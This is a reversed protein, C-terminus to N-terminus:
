RRPPRGGGSGGRRATQASAILENAIEEAEDPAFDLEVVGARTTIIFRVMGQDTPGIRLAGAEEDRLTDTM